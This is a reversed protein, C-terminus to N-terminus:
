DENTNTVDSISELSSLTEEASDSHQWPMYMPSRGDYLYYYDNLACYVVAIPVLWYPFFRIDRQSPVESKYHSHWLMDPVAGPGFNNKAGALVDHIYEGTVEFEGSSVENELKVWIPGFEQTMFRLGVIEQPASERRQAANIEKIAMSRGALWVARGMAEDFDLEVEELSRTVLVWRASMAM